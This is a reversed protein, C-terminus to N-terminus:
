YPITSVTGPCGFVSAQWLATAIFEHWMMRRDGIAVAHVACFSVRSAEICHLHGCCVWDYALQLDLWETAVGSHGSNWLSVRAAIPCALVARRPWRMRHLAGLVSYLPLHLLHLLAPVPAPLRPTGTHLASRVAATSMSYQAACRLLAVCEHCRREGTDGVPFDSLPLRRECFTCRAGSAAQQAAAIIDRDVDMSHGNAPSLARRKLKPQESDYYAPAASDAFPRASLRAAGAVHPLDRPLAGDGYVSAVIADIDVALRYSSAATGVKWDSFADQVAARPQPTGEHLGDCLLM